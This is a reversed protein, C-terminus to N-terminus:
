EDSRDCIQRALMRGPQVEDSWGAVYWVNRLYAM